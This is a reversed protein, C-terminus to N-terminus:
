YKFLIKKKLSRINEYNTIKIIKEASEKTYRVDKIDVKEDNAFIM